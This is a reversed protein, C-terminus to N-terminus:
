IYIENFRRLMAAWSQKGVLGDAKLGHLTQFHRVLTETAQGWIGDVKVDPLSPEAGMYSQICRVAFGTDGRRLIYGPYPTTIPLMTGRRLAYDAQIIKDWTTKGIIGDATLQHHPQFRVVANYMSPGFKGDEKQTNVATYVTAIRNLRHQMELVAAGSSGWSLPTGPYFCNEAHDSPDASCAAKERSPAATVPEADTNARCDAPRPQETPVPEPDTYAVPRNDCTFM